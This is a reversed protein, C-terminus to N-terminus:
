LSRWTREAIELHKPMGITRHMEIAEGLLTRARDRDGLANRDILMQAYRRRVDPQAIKLPIEHTQRLATQYHREAADWDGGGPAAIGAATAVLGIGWGAVRIEMMCLLTPYLAHAERREGLVALAEVALEALHWAGTFCPKGPSPLAARKSAFVAGFELFEGRTVKAM